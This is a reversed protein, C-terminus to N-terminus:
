RGEAAAQAIARRRLDAGDRDSLAQEILPHLRRACNDFQAAKRIPAPEEHIDEAVRVRARKAIKRARDTVLEHAMADQGEARRVWRPATLSHGPEEVAKVELGVPRLVEFRQLLGRKPLRLNRSYM